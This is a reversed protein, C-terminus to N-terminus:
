LMSGPVDNTNILYTQTVHDKGYVRKNHFRIVYMYM